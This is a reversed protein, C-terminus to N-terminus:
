KTELVTWESTQIKITTQKLKKSERMIQRKKWRCRRYVVFILFANAKKRSINSPIDTHTAYHRQLSVTTIMLKARTWRTVSISDMVVFFRNSHASFEQQIRKIPGSINAARKEWNDAWSKHVSIKTKQLHFITYRFLFFYIGFHTDDIPSYDLANFFRSRCWQKNDAHM